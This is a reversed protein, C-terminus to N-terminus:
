SEGGEEAPAGEVARTRLPMGDVGGPVPSVILLDGDALGDSVVARDARRQIVKVTQRHLRGDRALLVVGDPQVLHGPLTVARPINRGQISVTVFMGPRLRFREDRSKGADEIEVVLPLTRTDAAVGAQSRAVRGNWILPPGQAAQFVVRAAARIRGDGDVALRAWDESPLDVAVDFRDARYIRGLRQGVVVHQGEEVSKELVWGDFRAKVAARELDLRAQDLAVRAMARGAVLQQRTPGTLALENDLAQRRQLSALYRQEAQDRVTPPVVQRRSLALIRDREAGALGTDAAAIGLSTELNRVQQDLRSMEAEIQEIQVGRREVELRYRRPDIHMLVMGRRIQGGATFLPDMGVVPGHVEAALLLAERPAVTGFAELTLTAPATRVPVVTVLPPLLPPAQREAKPRLVMLLGAVALSLLIVGAFRLSRFLPGRQM